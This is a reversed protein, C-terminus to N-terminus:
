KSESQKDTNDKCLWLKDAFYYASIGLLFGAFAAFYVSHAFIAAKAGTAAIKASPNAARIVDASTACARKTSAAAKALASQLETAM